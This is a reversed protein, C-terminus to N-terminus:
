LGPGPVLLKWRASVLYVQEATRSLFDRNREARRLTTAPTRGHRISGAAASRALAGAYIGALIRNSIVSRLSPAATALHQGIPAADRIEGEKKSKFYTEDKTAEGIRYQLVALRPM